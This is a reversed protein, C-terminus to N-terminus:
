EKKTLEMPDEFFTNGYLVRTLVKGELLDFGAVVREDGDADWVTDGPKFREQMFEIKLALILKNNEQIARELAAIQQPIEKVRETEGYEKM